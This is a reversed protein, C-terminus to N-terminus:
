SVTVKGVGREALVDALRVRQDGSFTLSEGEIFGGCGLTKKIERLWTQLVDAPLGLKEVLTVEKGGRGSRQYRVVARM